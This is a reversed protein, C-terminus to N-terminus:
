RCKSMRSGTTLSRTSLERRFAFVTSGLVIGAGVLLRATVQEGLVAVGGVVGVVPILYASLAATTPGLQAINRYNLLEAGATSIVGLAILSAIRAPTVALTAHDLTTAVVPMLVLVAGSQVVAAIYLPQRHALNRRLYTWGFGYCGAAVLVALCGRWSSESPHASGIGVLVAVGILGVATAAVQCRGPRHGLLLVSFVTTWLPITAHLVAALGAGIHQQGWATLSFPIAVTTTALVIVHWRDRRRVSTPLADRGRRRRVVAAPVLVLASLSVRALAVCLPPIGPLVMKMLVSSLGWMTSVLFVGLVTGGSFSHLGTQM